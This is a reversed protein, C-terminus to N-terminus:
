LGQEATERATQACQRGVFQRFQRGPKCRDENGQQHARLDPVNVTL